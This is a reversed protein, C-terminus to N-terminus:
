SLHEKGALQEDTLTDDQFAVFFQRLECFMYLSNARMQFRFHNLFLKNSM